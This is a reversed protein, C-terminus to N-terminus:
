KSLIVLYPRAPPGPGMHAAGGAGWSRLDSEETRARPWRLHGPKSRRQVSGTAADASASAARAPHAPQESLYDPEFCALLAELGHDNTSRVLREAVALPTAM